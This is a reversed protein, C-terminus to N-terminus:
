SRSALQAKQKKPAKKQATKRVSKESKVGGKKLFDCSDEEQQWPKQSVVRLRNGPLIKLTLKSGKPEVEPEALSMRKTQETQTLTGDELWTSYEIVADTHPSSYDRTQGQGLRVVESTRNRGRFDLHISNREKKDASIELNVLSLSNMDCRVVAEYKGLFDQIKAAEAKGAFLALALALATNLKTM